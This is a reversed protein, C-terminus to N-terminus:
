KKELVRWAKEDEMYLDVASKPAKAALEGPRFQYMKPFQQLTTWASLIACVIAPM